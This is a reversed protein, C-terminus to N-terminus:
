ARNKYPTWIKKGAVWRNLFETGQLYGFDMLANKTEEALEFDVVSIEKVPIFIIDSADYKSIHRNDHAEMMTQFLAKFLNFANNVKHEPINGYSSSLQFGLVPRESTRDKRQFLWIPFNSLVGGDVIFSKQGLRNYLTIPYFFYPISCSMRVARAVPFKEKLLGYEQLDDPLVVLRGRTIDSAIIKLSGDQIDAFTEIGKAKLLEKVWRELADGKYLGLKWYVKLWNMFPIPVWSKKEDLFQKLDVNHILDKLEASTYGAAVLSAVLAGASTGAVRKFQLGREEAAQIAGILSIGKIGGGSFVGDVMMM